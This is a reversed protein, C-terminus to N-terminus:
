QLRDTQDRHFHGRRTFTSVNGGAHRAIPMLAFEKANPGGSSAISLAVYFGEEDEGQRSRVIVINVGHTYVYLPKLKAISDAWVTPALEVEGALSTKGSKVHNRWTLLAGQVVDRSNFSPYVEEDTADGGRAVASVFMFVALPLSALLFSLKKM